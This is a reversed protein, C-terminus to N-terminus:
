KFIVRASNGCELPTNKYKIPLILNACQTEAKDLPFQEHMLTKLDHLDFNASYTSVLLFLPKPSLLQKCLEILEQLQENFKWLEGKPGRGFTPPDMIIGDYTHGRRIERQVFKLVDDVIYRIPAEGLDSLVANEKAWQVMGKSADVHVVQAGEKACAMSAAGTYAFLNLVSIPRKSDKILKRMWDWNSAQEPFIGTHKYLTPSIKFTLDLYGITWSSPIEKRFIWEGIATGSRYTADASIWHHAKMDSVYDLANVDPRRLVFNGFRELKEGEGVDILEYDM